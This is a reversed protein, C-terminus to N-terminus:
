SARPARTALPVTFLCWVSVFTRQLLGHTAAMAVLTVGFALFERDRLLLFLASPSGFRAPPSGRGPETRAQQKPGACAGATGGSLALFPSWMSPFPVVLLLRGRCVESAYYVAPEEAVGCAQLAESLSAPSDGPAIVAVRDEGLGADFLTAVAGDVRVLSDFLALMLRYEDGEM